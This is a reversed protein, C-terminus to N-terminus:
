LPIGADFRSEETELPQEARATAPARKAPLLEFHNCRFCLKERKEGTMKDEWQATRVSADDIFVFDGKQYRQAFLEAATGGIEFDLFSPDNHWKDDKGKYKHDVALRFRTVMAGSPFTTFFPDATLRGTFICKNAM